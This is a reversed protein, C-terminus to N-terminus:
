SVEFFSLLIPFYCEISIASDCMKFKIHRTQLFIM